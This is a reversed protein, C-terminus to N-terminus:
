RCASIKLKGCLGSFHRGVLATGLLSLRRSDKGTMVPPMAIPCAAGRQERGLGRSDALETGRKRNELLPPRAGAPLRGDATIEVLLLIMEVTRIAYSKESSSLNPPLFIFIM